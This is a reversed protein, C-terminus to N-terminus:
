AYKGRKKIKSNHTKLQLSVPLFKKSVYYFNIHTHPSQLAKRIENRQKMNVRVDRNANYFFLILNDLFPRRSVVFKM